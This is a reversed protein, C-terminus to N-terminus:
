AKGLVIGDFEAFYKQLHTADIIDISGDGNTDALALQEDTFRALEALHRQIATVDRVNINGDLNTDGTKYSVNITVFRDTPSGVSKSVPSEVECFVTYQGIQDPVFSYQYDCKNDVVIEQGNPEIIHFKYSTVFTVNDITINASEGLVINSSDTSISYTTDGSVKYISYKQANIIANPLMNINTGDDIRNDTLNLNNSSCASKLYLYAGNSDNGLLIYWHQGDSNNYDGCQVNAGVESSSNAVELYKGNKYSMITYWGNDSNRVFHWLIGSMKEQSSTTLEVNGNDNQFVPKWYNLHEISASFDEGVNLVEACKDIAFKQNNNGLYSWLELNTGAAPSGGTVDIVRDQSCEPRLFYLGENNQYIFWNQATSGNEPICAINGGDFDDFNHLEMCNDNLCSKIRYSGNANRSFKWIQRAIKFNSHEGIVVNGNFNTVLVNLYANRIRASFNDGLNVLSMDNYWHVPTQFHYGVDFHRGDSSFRDGSISYYWGIRVVGNYNGEATYLSNGSRKLIVFWHGNENYGVHIVDGARVENINHFEEGYRPNDVNFCYKAFDGAYAGCGSSDWSSIEPGKGGTYDGWWSVGATWKPDNIFADFTSNGTSELGVQDSQLEAASIYIAGNPVILAIMVFTLLVVAVKKIWKKM